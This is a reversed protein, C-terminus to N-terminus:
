QINQEDVFKAFPDDTLAYPLIEEGTQPYIVGLSKIAWAKTEVPEPWAGDNGERWTRKPSAVLENRGEISDYGMTILAVFQNPDDTLVFADGESGLFVFRDVCGTKKWLAIHSGDGGCRIFPVIQKEYGQRGFWHQIRDDPIVFHIHSSLADVNEVVLSSLFPEQSSIYHYCQGKNELWAILKWLASPLDADLENLRSRLLTEFEGIPKKSFPLKFM